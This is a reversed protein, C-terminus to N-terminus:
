AESYNEESVEMPSIIQRPGEGLASKLFRFRDIDTLDDGKVLSQFENKFDLWKTFDCSPYM